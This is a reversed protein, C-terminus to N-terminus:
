QRIPIEISFQTGEGLQSVCSLSGHHKETIIQYSISMGLGTGKGVEKTTFFPDFIRTKVQESMGLGNDAIRIAILNPNIVETTITIQRPPVSKEELIDIANSLINMFVQNLQGAYCEIPPLNGYNKITIIEPRDSKAKLRHHLIMLSSDIGEHINVTKIESEDLRSFIRLSSVIARIRDAGIHMSNFIKQLDETLFDIEKEAILNALQPHPQPYYEQYSQLLYILDDAYEQAHIINGFIFNIPNNIEHAIGAVLQGLSSMKETQILQSQTKQLKEITQQLEEAKQRLNMESKQLAEEAQKRKIGLSIEKAAFELGKFTSNALEQRAFMAVVGLLQNDVMLPYGAFAVMGERKAWGQDGVSPDNLVSNTLHPKKEEAILGIKFKGVPVRAHDGNIHTYLGSSAQLELMNEESNITWIRAFAADCHQM